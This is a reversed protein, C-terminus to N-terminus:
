LPIASSFLFYFLFIALIRRFCDDQINLIPKKQKILLSEAITLDQKNNARYLVATSELLKRTLPKTSHVTKNHLRISGSQVHAYFRQAVTCTTYGIYTVDNCGDEPCSYQYVVRSDVKSRNPNNKILLSKMTPNRYYIHLLVKKNPDVATVNRSIIKQMKQDDAKSNSTFHNRYFLLIDNKEIQRVNNVTFKATLFKEIIADVIKIPFNNNVLLQRIREVESHFHDWTSCITYARHLFTKIVAQKYKEPCVSNYNLCEETNTSKKYVSTEIGSVTRHLLVDLFPLKRKIETEYTFRLVSNNEFYEKLAHLEDVSDMVVFCDDVYRCYIKPKTTLNDFASNELHCMYFSALTPGLPSGMSVGDTQVYLSGDINRFPSKTTCTTLLKKLIVKSIEPPELTPHNYVNDLIIDITEHVPVNTFLSEVDLSAFFKPQQVSKCIEVFEHTSDIMHKKPM